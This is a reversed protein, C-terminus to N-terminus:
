YNNGGGTGRWKPDEVRLWVDWKKEEEEFKQRM